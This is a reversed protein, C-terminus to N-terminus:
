KTMAIKGSRVTEKIGFPRMVEMVDNVRSEDGTIELSVSDKKVSIVNAGFSEALQLIETRAAGPSANVKLLILEVETMETDTIDNVKIVDILKNLQKNVQEIVADDGSVVITMRSVSPEETEGVTLSNINYARGAFLSAIRALVGFHNEVLVSVTHKKM